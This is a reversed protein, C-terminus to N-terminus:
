YGDTNMYDTNNNIFLKITSISIITLVNQCKKEEVNRVYHLKLVFRKRVDERSITSSKSCYM